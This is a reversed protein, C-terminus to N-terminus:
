PRGRAFRGAAQEWPEWPEGPLVGATGSVQVEAMLQNPRLRNGLGMPLPFSRESDM